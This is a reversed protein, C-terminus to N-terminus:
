AAANLRKERHTISAVPRIKMHIDHYHRDFAAPVAPTEYRLVFRATM